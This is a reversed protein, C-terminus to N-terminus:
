IVERTNQSDLSWTKLGLSHEVLQLQKMEEYCMILPFLHNM